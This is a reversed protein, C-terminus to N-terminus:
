NERSEASINPATYFGDHRVKPLVEEFMWKQFVLSIPSNSRALLSYLGPESITTLLQAGGPTQVKQKGKWEAQVKSLYNSYNRPDAEPYLIALIDAAVWEPRDATGVFRIEQNQFIQFALNTM